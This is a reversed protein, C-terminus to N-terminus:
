EAAEAKREQPGEEKKKPLLYDWYEELLRWFRGKPHGGDITSLHEPCGAREAIGDAEDIIDAAYKVGHSGGSQVMRALLRLRGRSLEGTERLEIAAARLTALENDTLTLYNPADGRSVDIPTRKDMLDGINGGSHDFSEMVVPAFCTQMPKAAKGKTKAYDALEDALEKIRSIPADHHCFVMGVGFTLATQNITLTKAINAIAEAVQWGLRAPVIFMIEDGGWLLTEFRVVSDLIVRADTKFLEERVKREGKSPCGVGGGDLVVDLAALILRALCVQLSDDFEKQGEQTDHNEQGEPGGKRFLAAQELDGFKNGDLHVVCIKDHLSTRLLRPPEASESISDIQMAFPRLWKADERLHREAKESREVGDTVDRLVEHKSDMGLRRRDHVSRSIALKGDPLMKGTGSKPVPRVFDVPCVAGFATSGQADTEIAPYALRSQCHRLRTSVAKLRKRTQTFPEDKIAEVVALSFGVHNFCRVTDDFSPAELLTKACRVAEAVAKATGSLSWIALSGGITVNDTQLGPTERLCKDVARVGLRMMASGGRITSLDQTDGVVSSYNQAEVLLWYDKEM